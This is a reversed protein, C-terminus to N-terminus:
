VPKLMTAELSTYTHLVPFRIRSRYIDYRDGEWGVRRVAARLLEPCSPLEPSRLVEFSSGLFKGTCHGPMRFDPTNQRNVAKMPDDITGTVRVNPTARTSRHGPVLLDLIIEECPVQISCGVALLDDDPDTLPLHRVCVAIFVTTRSSRGVGKLHLSERIENDYRVSQISRGMDSCFDELVIFESAPQMVVGSQQVQMYRKSLPISSLSRLARLEVFGKIVVSAYSASDNAHYICAAYMSRASMGWIQMNARYAARRHKLDVQPAAGNGLAAIMADFTGRDGAQHEIFTGLEAYARELGAIARKDFGARTSAALVKSMAEPNPIFAVTAFPDDATAWRFVQWALPARIHLARQLDTARPLPAKSSALLRAVTVMLRALVERAESEFAGSRTSRGAPAL